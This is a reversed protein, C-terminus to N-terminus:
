VVRQYLHLLQQTEIPTQNDTQQQQLQQQAAKKLKKKMMGSHFRGGEGRIRNM